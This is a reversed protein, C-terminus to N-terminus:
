RQPASADLSRSVVGPKATSEVALPETTRRDSSDPGRPPSASPAPSPHAIVAAINKGYRSSSAREAACRAREENRVSDM